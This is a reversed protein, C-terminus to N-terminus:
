RKSLSKGHKKVEKRKPKKQTASGKGGGKLHRSISELAWHLFPPTQRTGNEWRTVSVRAIGLLLALDEQRLSHKKRWNILEERTM